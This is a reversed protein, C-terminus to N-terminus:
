SEESTANKQDLRGAQGKIKDMNNWTISLDGFYPPWAVGVQIIATAGQQTTHILLFLFWNKM